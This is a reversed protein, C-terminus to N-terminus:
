ANGKPEIRRRQHETLGGWIGVPPPDMALAHALCALRVPCADCMAAAMVTERTRAGVSPFWADPYGSHACAAERMWPESSLIDALDHLAAVRPGSRIAGAKITGRRRKVNAVWPETNTFSARVPSERDDGM